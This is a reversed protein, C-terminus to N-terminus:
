SPSHLDEGHIRDNCKSGTTNKQKQKQSLQLLQNMIRAGKKM